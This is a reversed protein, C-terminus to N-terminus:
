LEPKYTCIMLYILGPSHPRSDLISYNKHPETAVLILIQANM